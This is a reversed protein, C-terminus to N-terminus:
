QAGQAIIVAKLFWLFLLCAVKPLFFCKVELPEDSVEFLSSVQQLQLTTMGEYPVSNDVISSVSLYFSQNHIIM